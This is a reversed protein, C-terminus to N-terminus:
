RDPAVRRTRVLRLASEVADSVAKDDKERQTDSNHFSQDVAHRVYHAPLANLAVCSADALLEEDGVLEPFRTSLERVKDFVARENLNQISSFPM